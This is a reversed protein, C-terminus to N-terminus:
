RAEHYDKRKNKEFISFVTNQISEGLNKQACRRNSAIDQIPQPGSLDRFFHTILIM